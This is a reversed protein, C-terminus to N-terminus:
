RAAEAIAALQCDRWSEIQALAKARDEGLLAADLPADATFHVRAQEDADLRNFAANVVRIATALEARITPPTM